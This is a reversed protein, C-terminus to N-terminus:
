EPEAVVVKTGALLDHLCRREEGFIMLADVLTFIWGLCCQNLITTLFGLVWSRVLVGSVFDVPSGDVKVIRIRLYKKGITQGSATIQVWQYLAVAFAGVLGILTLVLFLPPPDEPMEGNVAQWAIVAVVAPGFPLYGVIGDILAAVFRAGRDALPLDQAEPSAAADPPAFPSSM